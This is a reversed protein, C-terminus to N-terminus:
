EAFSPPVPVRSGYLHRECATELSFSLAHSSSFTFRAVTDSRNSRLMLATACSEDLGRIEGNKSRISSPDANKTSHRLVVPSVTEAARIRPQKKWFGHPIKEGTWGVLDPAVVLPVGCALCQGKVVYFDGPASKSHPTFKPACAM